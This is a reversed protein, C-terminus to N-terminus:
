RRSRIYLWTGGLVGVVMLVRAILGAAVLPLGILRLVVAVVVFLGGHLFQNSLWWPLVEDVRTV